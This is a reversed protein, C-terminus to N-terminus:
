LAADAQLRVAELLDGMPIQYDVLHLGFGIGEVTTQRWPPTRMDGAQADLSVRLFSFGDKAVCEGKFIDRYLGYPTTIDEPLPTNPAFSANAISKRFYSAKFRGSNNALTAPNVCAIQMGANMTRGFRAAQDPEKDAAFSVYAIVCGAQGPTSCLPINKFTGGVLQGVPAEVQFGILLASLLRARVEPMPDIDMQALQTLMSTGQSHGILVFKRGQNLHQLYYAFSARVDKIGLTPDAGAVIQGNLLGVQRYFPAYLKCMSSFRAGQALLADNVMTVGKSSFDIMQPDGNTLVTPYVYFCDFEPNQAFSHVETERSGDSKIL